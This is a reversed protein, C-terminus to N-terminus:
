SIFRDQVVPDFEVGRPRFGGQAEGIYANRCGFAHREEVRGVERDLASLRQQELTRRTTTLRCQQARNTPQAGNARGRTAPGRLVRTRGEVVAMDGV